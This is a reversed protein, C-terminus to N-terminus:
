RASEPTDKMADMANVILIVLVQEIHSRDGLVRPLGAPVDRRLTVRRHLADGATLKVVHEIIAGIDVPLPLFERRHVLSRIGRIAADARLDDHRIDALIQRLEALPPQESRLMIEAAEANSLIACLPQNVEHAVMATLEGVVAFRAAHALQRSAEEARKRDTIDYSIAQLERAQESTTEILHCAWSQWGRTGDAHEVECEWAAPDAGSMAREIAERAAPRAAAPLLEIFSAGSLELRSKGLFRCYASNVFTLTADPLFRCVFGIQSEVLDRYRSESRKLAAEQQRRDTVDLASGVYGLFEGSAGYRPQGRALVWRYEGDSRRLRSEDEFPRRSQVNVQYEIISRAADAPHVIEMWGTGQFQELTLGTFDRWPKNVFECAGDPGAMWIMVPAQDAMHRFRQESERLSNSVRSGHEILVAVLFLPAARLLLFHQLRSSTEAASLNAYSGTGNVAADVAFITLMAVAATAGFMRFRIAAWMMFPVPAYFRTETLDRPPSDEQFALSMTVLLGIALAGAELIRPLRFTAPNPPRLVWYFLIPTVILNAMGDALLWQEFSPWFPHGLGSRAVAGAFASLLPILAVAFLLFVGLDRMSNLRIPDGLFRRLLWACGAAKACDNIFCAMLFWASAEPPVAVLLRIPLVGILLLWWRSTRTCLLACLLVSDPFWFPASVSSSFAMGAHYAVLYALEFALFGLINRVLPPRIAAWPSWPAAMTGVAPTVPSDM